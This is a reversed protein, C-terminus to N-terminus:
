AITQHDYVSAKKYTGLETRYKPGKKKDYVGDIDSECLHGASTKQYNKMSASRNDFDNTQNESKFTEKFYNKTKVGYLLSFILVVLFIIYLQNNTITM